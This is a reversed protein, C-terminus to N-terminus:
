RRSGLDAFSMGAIFLTFQLPDGSQYGEPVIFGPTTTFAIGFLDGTGIGVITAIGDGFPTNTATQYFDFLGPAGFEFGGGAPNVFPGLNSFSEFTRTLGTLDLSGQGSINIGSNSEVFSIDIIAASAPLAALQSFAVVFASFKFKM